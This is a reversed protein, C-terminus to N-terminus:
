FAPNNQYSSGWADGQTLTLPDPQKATQQLSGTTNGWGSNGTINAHKRAILGTQRARVRLTTHQTGDKGTYEHQTLTGSVIIHDGKHASALTTDDARTQVDLWLTGQKQWQHNKNFYGQTHGITATIIKTGDNFQRIEPDRALNGDVTIESIM